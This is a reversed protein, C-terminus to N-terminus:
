LAASSVRLEGEIEYDDIDIIEDDVFVGEWDGMFHRAFASADFEEDDLAGDEELFEKLEGWKSTQLKFKAQIERQLLGEEGEKRSLKVDNESIDIGFEEPLSDAMLYPESDFFCEELEKINDVELDETSVSQVIKLSIAITNM